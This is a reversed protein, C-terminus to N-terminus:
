SQREDQIDDVDQGTEIVFEPRRRSTAVTRATAQVERLAIASKAARAILWGFMRGAGEVGLGILEWALRGLVYGVAIVLVLELDAM